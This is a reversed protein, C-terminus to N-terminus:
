CLFEQFHALSPLYVDPVQPLQKANGSKQVREVDKLSHTGTGVLMSQFGSNHAFVMDSRLSCCLCLFSIFSFGNLPNSNRSGYKDGVMLTTEPNILGCNKPEELIWPNPKGLILPKRGSIMKIAAVMAGAGVLVRQKGIPYAGDLCTGLFIVSDTDRLYACARMITQVNFNDDKGVVVAGVLPDVEVQRAFEYMTINPKMYDVTFACIRSKRLEDKIGADGVVYVKRNFNKSTLYKAVSQASSFFHNDDVEYGHSIARKMLTEITQSSNNTVIMLRRGQSKLINFTEVAGDFAKDHQWLVGDADFVVTEMLNLWQRVRQKPLKLLNTCTKKFM